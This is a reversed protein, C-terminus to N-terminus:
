TTNTKTNKNTNRMYVAGKNQLGEKVPRQEDQAFVQKNNIIYKGNLFFYSFLDPFSLSLDQYFIREKFILIQVIELFWYFNFSYPVHFLFPNLRHSM